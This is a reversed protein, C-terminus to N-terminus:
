LSMEKKKEKNIPTTIVLKERNINNKNSFPPKLVPSTKAMKSTILREIWLAPSILLDYVNIVLRGSYYGLSGFIRLIFSFLRLLFAAIAGSITRISFVFIEFPMAVTTLIFPLIFGLIMQGI